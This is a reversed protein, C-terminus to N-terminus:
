HGGGGGFLKAAGSILGPKEVAHAPSAGGARTARKVPRTSAETQLQVLRIQSATANFYLANGKGADRPVEVLELIMNEYTNLTTVITCLKGNVLRYLLEGYAAVARDQGGYVLSALLEVPYNSIVGEIQVTLPEILVHDSIDGQEGKAAEVPRRTAKATARHLERVSADLTIVGVFDGATAITAQRPGFLLDTLSM